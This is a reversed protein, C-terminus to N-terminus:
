VGAPAKKAEDISHQLFFILGGELEDVIIDEDALGAAVAEEMLKTLAEVDTAMGQVRDAIAQAPSPGNSAVADEPAPESTDPEVAAPADTPEQTAAPAAPETAAAAEASAQKEEAAESGLIELLRTIVQNLPLEAFGVQGRAGFEVTRGVPKVAVRQDLINSASADAFIGGMDGAGAVKLREIMAEVAAPYAGGSEAPAEPEQAAVQPEQAATSAAEAPEAPASAEPAVSQATTPAPADLQASGQAAGELQSLRRNVFNVVTGHTWGDLGEVDFTPRIVPKGDISAISVPANLMNQQKIPGRLASLGDFHNWKETLADALSRALNKQALMAADETPASSAVEGQESSGDGAAGSEDKAEPDEVSGAVVAAGPAPNLSELYERAIQAAGAFYHTAAVAVKQCWEDRATNQAEVESEENVAEMPYQDAAGKQLVFSVWKGAEAHSPALRDSPINNGYTDAQVKDTINLLRRTLESAQANDKTIELAEIFVARNKGLLYGGLNVMGNSTRPNWPKGENFVGRRVERAIESNQIGGSTTGFIEAVAAAIAAVSGEDLAGGGTSQHSSEIVVGLKTWDDRDGVYRWGPPAIEGTRNKSLFKWERPNSNITETPMFDVMAVLNRINDGSADMKGESGDQKAGRLAHIPTTKAIPEGSSKSKVKRVSEIAIQIGAGTKHAERIAALTPDNPNMYAMFDNDFDVSKADFMIGVTDGKGTRGGDKIGQIQISDFWRVYIQPRGTTATGDPAPITEPAGYAVFSPSKGSPLEITM